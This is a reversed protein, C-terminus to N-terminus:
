GGIAPSIKVPLERVHEAFFKALGNLRDAKRRYLEVSDKAGMAKAKAACQEAAAALIEFGDRFASIRKPAAAVLQDLLARFRQDAQSGPELPELGLGSLRWHALIAPWFLGYLSLWGRGFRNAPDDNREVVKSAAFDFDRVPELRLRRTLSALLDGAIAESQRELLAQDAQAAGAMVVWTIDRLRYHVFQVLPDEDGYLYPLLRSQSQAKLWEAPDQALFGNVLLAAMAEASGDLTSLGDFEGASARADVL